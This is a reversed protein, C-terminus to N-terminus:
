RPQPWKHSRHIRRLGMNGRCRRSYLRAKGKHMSSLKCQPSYPLIPYKLFVYLEFAARIWQVNGQLAEVGALGALVASQEV